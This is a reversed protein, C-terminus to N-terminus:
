MGWQLWLRRVKAARSDCFLLNGDAELTLEHPESFALSRAEGDGTYTGGGAITRITGDKLVIRIRRSGREAIFVRGNKDVTVGYPSSLQASVAPGGDGNTGESGDGAVTTVVETRADYKRVRHNRADAFFVNDQSDVAVQNVYNIETERGKRNDGNYGHKGDVGVLSTVVGDRDMRRIHHWSGGDNDWTDAFVVGGRSDLAFGRLGAFKAQMAPGGDGAFDNLFSGNAQAPAGAVTTITGSVLNVRRIRMNLTDGVYLQGGAGIALCRPWWLGADKGAGGDGSFQPVGKGALTTIVGESDVKRVMHNGEDAIYLNGDADKVVSKPKYLQADKAAKGNGGLGSEGNGAVTTVALVRAGLVDAWADGLKQKNLGVALAYAQNMEGIKGIALDPVPLDGQALATETLQTLKSLGALEYDAMTKGLRAARDRLFETVYTTALSVDVVNKGGKSVTFGVERRNDALIVNVIVVEGTPVGGPFDYRGKDDTTATLPQGDFAYFREDPDTLYVIANAIPKQSVALTAYRTSNNAVISAGNHGIIRGSNNAVINAGVVGAPGIAQGLVRAAGTAERLKAREREVMATRDVSAISTTFVDKASCAALATSLVSAAAVFLLPCRVSM